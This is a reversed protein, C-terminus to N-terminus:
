GKMRTVFPPVSTANMQPAGGLPTWYSYYDWFYLNRPVNPPCYGYEDLVHVLIASDRPPPPPAASKTPDGSRDIGSSGNNGTSSNSSSSVCAGSGGGCGGSSCCSRPRTLQEPIGRWMFELTQTREMEKKAYDPFRNAVYSSFGMQAFMAATSGLHGQPDIHWASEPLHEAGFESEIWQLGLQMQNIDAAFHSAIEDQM